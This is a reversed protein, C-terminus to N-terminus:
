TVAARLAALDDACHKQAYVAAKRLLRASRSPLAARTVAADAGTVVDFVALAFARTEQRMYGQWGAEEAGQLQIVGFGSTICHLDTSLEEAAPGGPMDLATLHLRHHMVEHIMTSLFARPRALAEPDYTILVDEGDSQFTGGVESLKGYDHRYEAPMVNLPAVSVNESGLGLHKLIAQVLEQATKQADGTSAPFNDRTPLIHTTDPGLLGEEIAWHFSDFIWDRTADEVHFSFFM